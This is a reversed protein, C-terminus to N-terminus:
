AARGRAEARRPVRSISCTGLGLLHRRATSPRARARDVTGTARRRETAAGRPTARPVPGQARGVPELEPRVQGEGVGALEHGVQAVQPDAVQVQRRRQLGARARGVAVVHDVRRPDRSSSPPSSPSRRARGAGPRPRSGRCRGWGCPCAAVLVAPPAVPAARSTNSTSRRVPRWRRKKSMSSRPPPAGPPGRPRRADRVALHELQQPRRSRRRQADVVGVAERVGGAVERPQAVRPASCTQTSFIRAGPRAAARVPRDVPRHAVLEEVVDCARTRRGRLGLGGNVSTQVRARRAVVRGNSRRRAPPGARAPRRRRERALDLPQAGRGATSVASSRRPARARQGDVAGVDLRPRPRTSSARGRPRAAGRCARVLERADQQELGVRRVLEDRAELLGRRRDRGLADLVGGEVAVVAQEREVLDAAIGARNPM